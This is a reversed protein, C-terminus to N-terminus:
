LRGIKKEELKNKTQEKNFDQNKLLTFSDFILADHLFCFVLIVQKVKHGLELLNLERCITLESQVHKLHFTM